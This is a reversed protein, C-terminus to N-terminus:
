EHRQEWDLSRPERLSRESKLVREVAPVTTGSSLALGEVDFSENWLGVVASGARLMLRRSVRDAVLLEDEMRVNVLSESGDGQVHFVAPLERNGTFRLYTFRGDDFVLSPVIDQSGLGEALTYNTNVVQPKTKMREAVIQRAALPPLVEPVTMSPAAIPLARATPQAPRVAPAKVTLRYIPSHADGEALVVFRFSHTRRDTVVALTNPAGASSKAKVFLHHGGSQAAVCWAAEAKSCDGGLGAAVETIAEDADLVVLTVIGRKVPVTVVARPDYNVERLRPDGAPPEIAGATVGFAMVAILLGLRAFANM